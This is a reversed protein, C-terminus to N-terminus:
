AALRRASRLRLSVAHKEDCLDSHVVVAVEVKGVLENSLGFLRAGVDRLKLEPPAVLRVLDIVDVVRAGTLQSLPTLVPLDLHHGRQNRYLIADRVALSL